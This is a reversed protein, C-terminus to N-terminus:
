SFVKVCVLDIGIWPFTPWSGAAEQFKGEFTSESSRTFPGSVVMPSYRVVLAAQESQRWPEHSM